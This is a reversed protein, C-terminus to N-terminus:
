DCISRISIPLSHLKLNVMQNVNQLPKLLMLLKKQIAMYTLANIKLTGMKRVILTISTVEIEKVVEEAVVMDVVGEMVLTLFFLLPSLLLILTMVRILRDILEEVTPITTNTLAQGKVSSYEKSLDHLVFVMFMNNLRGLIKMINDSVMM